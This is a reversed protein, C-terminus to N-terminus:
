PSAGSGFRALLPHIHQWQENALACLEAHSQRCANHAPKLERVIELLDLPQMYSTSTTWGSDNWEAVTTELVGLGIYHPIRHVFRDRYTEIRSTRSKGGPAIEEVAEKVRTCSTWPAVYRWLSDWEPARLDDSTRKLGSTGIDCMRNVEDSLRMAAFAFRNKLAFPLNLVHAALPIVFELLLEHKEDIDSTELVQAWAALKEIGQGFSNVENTLMFGLHTEAVTGWGDLPTQFTLHRHFSPKIVLPRRSEHPLADLAARYRQFGKALHESQQAWAEPQDLHQQHTM